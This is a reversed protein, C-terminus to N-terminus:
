LLLHLDLIQKLDRLLFLVVIEHDFGGSQKLYIEVLVLRSNIISAALNELDFHVLRDCM